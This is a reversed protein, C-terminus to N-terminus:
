KILQVVNGQEDRVYQHPTIAAGCYPCSTHMGIIYVGGCFNCAEQYVMTLNCPQANKYEPPVQIAEIADPRQLALMRIRSKSRGLRHLM